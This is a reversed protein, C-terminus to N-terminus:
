FLSGGIVSLVLFVIFSVIFLVLGKKYLAFKKNCIISCIYIQSVLDENFKSSNCALIKSKYDTMKKYSAISAFFILSDSKVNQSNFENIDTKAILVGVLLICGIIMAIVTLVYIIVFLYGGLNNKDIMGSIISSIKEVYDTALFIGAVVGICSLFSSAKSDCNDIWGITKDLVEILQERKEENNAM